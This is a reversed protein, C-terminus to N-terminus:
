PGCIGPVRSWGWGRSFGRRSCPQMICRKSSHGCCPFIDKWTTPLGAPMLTLHNGKQKVKMPCRGLCHEQGGLALTISVHPCWSVPPSSAVGKCRCCHMQRSPWTGSRQPKCGSSTLAPLRWSRRRRCGALALTMALECWACWMIAWRCSITM